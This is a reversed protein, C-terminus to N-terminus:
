APKTDTKNEETIPKHKAFYTNDCQRFTYVVKEAEYLTFNIPDADKIDFMVVNVGGESLLSRYAVGDAGGHRLGECIIQTPVYNLVAQEPEHPISMAQSIDGWVVSEFEDPAWPVFQATRPDFPRLWRKKDSTCDVIKLERNTQFQSISISAGLWPRLESGATAKTNALYLYAVGRPNARGDRAIDPIPKMRDAFFPVEIEIAEPTGENEIRTGSGLQARWFIAGAELIQIRSLSTEVVAELFNSITRDYIFRRDHKVSRAFRTYADASEFPM